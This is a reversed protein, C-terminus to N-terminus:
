LRGRLRTYLTTVPRLLDGSYGSTRSAKRWGFPTWYHMYSGQRKYWLTNKPCHWYARSMLNM